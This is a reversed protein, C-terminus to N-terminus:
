LSPSSRTPDSGKGEEGLGGMDLSEIFDQFASLKKLEEKGVPARHEPDPKGGQAAAGEGGVIANGTEKDLLVGAKQMVEDDVFIPVKARVALALADSPRSDIDVVKSGIRVSIKAFYTDNQLGSVVIREIAGGLDKITNFLLDHTLPRPVQVDQLRVAIAEAEHTGIWILLYRDGEKQKLIVVRQYNELSVRISDIEMENM